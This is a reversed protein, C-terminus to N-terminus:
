HDSTHFSVVILEDYAQFKIYTEVHRKYVESYVLKKYADLPDGNAQSVATNYYDLQTLSNIVECIDDHGFHFEAFAEQTARKTVVMRGDRALQQIQELSYSPSM